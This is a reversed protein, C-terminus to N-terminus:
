QALRGTGVDAMFPMVAEEAPEPKASLDPNRTNAPLDFDSEIWEGRSRGAADSNYLQSIKVITYDKHGLKPRIVNKRNDSLEQTLQIKRHFNNLASLASVGYIDDTCPILANPNNDSRRAYRIRYKFDSM